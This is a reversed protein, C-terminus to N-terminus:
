RERRRFIHYVCVQEIIPEDFLYETTPTQHGVYPGWKHWRWGGREETAKRIVTFSVCYQRKDNELQPGFDAQFQEISDCVGYANLGAPLDEAYPDWEDNDRLNGGRASIMADFSFHGIQYFGTALREYGPQRGSLNAIFNAVADNRIFHPDVFTM